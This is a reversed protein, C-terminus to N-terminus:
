NFYEELSLDSEINVGFLADNEVQLQKGDQFEYTAIQSGDVDVLSSTKNLGPINRELATCQKEFINKDFVNCIEYSYM